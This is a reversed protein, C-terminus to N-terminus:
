DSTEVRYPRAIKAPAFPKFVACQQFYRLLRKDRFTPEIVAMLRRKLLLTLEQQVKLGGTFRTLVPFSTHFGLYGKDMHSM